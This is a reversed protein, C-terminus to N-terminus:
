IPRLGKRMQDYGYEITQEVEDSSLLNRVTELGERWRDWGAIKEITLIFGALIALSFVFAGALSIPAYLSAMEADYAPYLAAVTVAIAPSSGFNLASALFTGIFIVANYYAVALIAVFIKTGVSEGVESVDTLRDGLELQGQYIVLGGFALASYAFFPSGTVWFFALMPACILIMPWTMSVTATITDQLYQTCTKRIGPYKSM